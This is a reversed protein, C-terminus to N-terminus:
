SGSRSMAGVGGPVPALGDLEVITGDDTVLLGTVGSAAAIRAPGGRPRRCPRGQDPGRGPHSQGGRHQGLVAGPRTAPRDGSPAPPAPPRFSPPGLARKRTTSTCVAGAELAIRRQGGAGPCDLDVIGPGTRGRGKPGCIVGRHQCLLGDVGAALLDAVVADAAAGKAIGGLDLGIGAPVQVAHLGPFLEIAAPGPAPGPGTTPAHDCRPGTSAPDTAGDTDPELTDFSTRYGAAQLCGLVTPDFAGNTLETADIAAAVLAYTDPSVVVPHGPNDNIANLESDPRFRSWRAERDAIAQEAQDLHDAGGGGILLHVDTGM